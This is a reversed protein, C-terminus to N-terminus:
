HFCCSVWTFFCLNLKLLSLLQVIYQIKRHSDFIASPISSGVTKNITLTRVQATTRELL